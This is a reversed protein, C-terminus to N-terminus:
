GLTKVFRLQETQGYGVATWFAQASDQDAAVVLHLRKAGLAHLQREGEDVLSRAVGRRRHSPAVALRYMTGRWGDWGLVVTGLIDRELVALLLTNPAHALLALLSSADDTTSPETTATQWFALVSAVDTTRGARITVLAGGNGDREPAVV